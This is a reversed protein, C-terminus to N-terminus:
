NCWPITITQMMQTHAHAHTDTSYTYLYIYLINGYVNIHMLQVHRQGRSVEGAGVQLVDQMPLAPSTEACSLSSTRGAELGIWDLRHKQVAPRTEQPHEEEQSSFQLHTGATLESVWRLCFTQPLFGGLAAMLPLKTHPTHPQLLLM